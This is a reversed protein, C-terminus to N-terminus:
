ETERDGQVADNAATGLGLKGAKGHGSGDHYVADKGKEGGERRVEAFAGFGGEVRAIEDRLDRTAALRAVLDTWRFRQLDASERTEPVGTRNFQGEFM